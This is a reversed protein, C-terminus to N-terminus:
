NQKESRFNDGWTPGIVSGECTKGPAPFAPLPLNKRVEPSSPLSLWPLYRIYPTM